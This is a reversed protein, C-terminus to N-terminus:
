AQISLHGDTTSPKLVRGTVVGEDFDARIKSLLGGRLSDSDTWAPVIRFFSRTPLRPPVGNLGPMGMRRPPM